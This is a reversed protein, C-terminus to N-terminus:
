MERKDSITLEASSTTSNLTLALKLASTLWDVRKSKNRNSMEKWNGMTLCIYELLTSWRMIWKKVKVSSFRLINKKKMRPLPTQTRKLCILNLILRIILFMQAFLLWLCSNEMTLFIEPRRKKLQITSTLNERTWTQCRMQSLLSLCYSSRSKHTMLNKYFWIHHTPLVEKFRGLGEELNQLKSEQLFRIRIYSMMRKPLM